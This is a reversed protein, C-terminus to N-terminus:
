EDNKKVGTDKKGKEERVVPISENGVISKLKNLDEKLMKGKAKTRWGFGLERKLKDENEKKLKLIDAYQEDIRKSNEVKEISDKSFLLDFMRGDGWFFGKRDVMWPIWKGKERLFFFFSSDNVGYFGKGSYIKATMSKSLESLPMIRVPTPRNPIIPHTTFKVFPEKGAAINGPLYWIRRILRSPLLLFGCGVLFPIAGCVLVIVSHMVLRLKNQLDTLKDDNENFINGALVTGIHFANISYILFVLAFCYCFVFYLKHPEAEYILEPEKKQLIYEYMKVLPYKNPEPVGPRPLLTPIAEKELKLSSPLRDSWENTQQKEGPIRRSIIQKKEYLEASVNHEPSTQLPEPTQSIQQHQKAIHTEKDKGLHNHHSNSSAKHHKLRLFNLSATISSPNSRRYPQLLTSSSTRLFSSVLPASRKAIVSPTFGGLPRLLLM